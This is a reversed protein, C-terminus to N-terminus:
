HSKGGSWIAIDPSAAFSNQMGEYCAEQQAASLHRSDGQKTETIEKITPGAIVGALLCTLSLLVAHSSKM